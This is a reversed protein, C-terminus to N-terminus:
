ARAMQSLEINLGDRIHAAPMAGAGAFSLVAICIM